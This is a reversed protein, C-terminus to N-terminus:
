FLIGNVTLSSSYFAMRAENTVTCTYEGSHIAQVSEISITSLRKNLRTITIGIPDATDTNLKKGNLSWEITMPFDGKIVSCSASAPEGSNITEDGFNFPM